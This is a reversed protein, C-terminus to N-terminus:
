FILVSRKIRRALSHGISFSLLAKDAFLCCPACKLGDFLREYRRRRRGQAAKLRKIICSNTITNANIVGRVWARGARPGKRHLWRSMVAIFCFVPFKIKFPSISSREMTQQAAYPPTSSSARNYLNPKRSSGCVRVRAHM